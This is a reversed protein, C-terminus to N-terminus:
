VKEGFYAIAVQKDGDGTRLGGLPVLRRDKLCEEVEQLTTCERIRRYPGAAAVATISNARADHEDYVPLTKFELFAKLQTETM